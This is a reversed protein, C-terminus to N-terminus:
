IVGFLGEGAYGEGIQLAEGAMQDVELQNRDGPGADQGPDLAQEGEAEPQSVQRGVRSGFQSKWRIFVAQSFPNHCDFVHLPHERSFDMWPVADQENQQIDSAQSNRFGTSQPPTIQM